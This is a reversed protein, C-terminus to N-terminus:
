KSNPGQPEAVPVELLPTPAFESTLYLTKGDPGYCISEGQNRRPMALKRPKRAFADAWTETAVRAFEYADGYTLVVARRGDPSMDMAVAPPIKISAIRKAALPTAASGTGARPWPLAYVGCRLGEKSVLYITGSTADVAVAECDRPGDAYAFDIRQGLRVQGNAPREKTGVAPEPVVYLTCTKRSRRNDGIDGILLLSKGGARVSAMDEWDRAAAGTVTYVALHEGESNFAYIRPGDGSDNHTWFLGRKLRSAALGSSECIKQNALTAVKRAKGYRVPEAVKSETESVAALCPLGLCVLAPLFLFGSRRSRRM